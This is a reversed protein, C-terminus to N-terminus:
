VIKRIKIILKYALGRNEGIVLKIRKNKMLWNKNM